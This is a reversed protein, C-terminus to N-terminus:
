APTNLRGAIVTWFSCAPRNKIKYHVNVVFDLRRIILWDGFNGLKGWDAGLFEWNTVM